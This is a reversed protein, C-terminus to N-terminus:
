WESRKRRKTRRQEKLEEYFKRNIRPYKDTSRRIAIITETYKGRRRTSRKWSDLQSFHKSQM